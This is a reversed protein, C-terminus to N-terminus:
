LVFYKAFYRLRGMHRRLNKHFVKYFVLFQEYEEETITRYGYVISLYIETLRLFSTDEVSFRDLAGQSDRAYELLTSGDPRKLGAKRLKEAFYLYLEMAGNEKIESLVRAYWKKRRIKKIIIAAALVIFVAAAALWLRGKNKRFTIALTKLPDNSQVIKGNQKQDQQKHNEPTKNSENKQQEKLTDAAKDSPLRDRSVITEHSIGLQRMLESSMLTKTLGAEDTPPSMPRIVGYWIGGALLIVIASVAAAQLFYARFDANGRESRLLSICYVRYLYLAFTCATFVLCGLLSVPYELFAFAAIMWTGFLFLLILGARSRGVFFVVPLIVLMVAGFFLPSVDTFGAIINMALGVSGLVCLVAEWIYKESYKKM